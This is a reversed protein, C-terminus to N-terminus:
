QLVLQTQKMLRIDNGGGSEPSNQSALHSCRAGSRSLSSALSVSSSFPGRDIHGRPRKESFTFYVVNHEGAGVGCYTLAVKLLM